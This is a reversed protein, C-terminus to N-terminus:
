KRNQLSSNEKFRMLQLNDPHHKGGKSLPVIHDVSWSDSSVQPLGEEKNRRDREKYIAEVRLQEEETLEVFGGKSKARSHARKWPDPEKLSRILRQRELRERNKRRREALKKQAENM